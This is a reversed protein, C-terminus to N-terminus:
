RRKHLEDKIVTTLLRFDVDMLKRWWNRNRGWDEAKYAPTSIGQFIRAIARATFDKGHASIFARTLKRMRDIQAQVIEQENSSTASTKEGLTVTTQQNESGSLGTKFYSNLANKLRSSAELRINKDTMMKMDICQARLINFVNAVRERGYSECMQSFIELYSKIEAIEAKSLDGALKIHFSNGEFRVRVQSRKFRGTKDDLEWETQKLQRTVEKPSEGILKSVKFIDFSIRNPIESECLDPHEEKYLRYGVEAPKHKNVLSNMQEPGNYCLLNCIPRIPSYLEIGLQPYAVQIRNILTLITEPSLNINETAEEIPIAIEHRSQCKRHKSVISRRFRYLNEKETAQPQNNAESESKSWYVLDQLSQAREWDIVYHIDEQNEKDLDEVEEKKMLKACRCTKFLYEAFKDVDKAEPLSAYIHRQQYYLDSKDSRLFMHCQAPKGDRGARGIEQVYNEFNAPMDFHIIARIDPKNIGMGFALTAVVVRIEGNIFDRQIRKRLETTMGAHYAEARWTLKKMSVEYLTGQSKGDENEINISDPESNSTVEVMTAYNQMATRIESALSETDERRNCYIIISPLIRFTPTKLLDILAAEKNTEYSVSLILNEPITTSGIIGDDCNIKLNRAIALSTERTATATLGLYTKINMQDHLVKFFQLYAPRFNHSWESLCHAEDVCVFGVPPLNKLDDVKLLGGVIAEPSIFVVQADGRVLQEISNKRQTGSQSSHLAVGKLSSSLNKLQDEILSILPSVIVTIYKRYRWYLLAPLQYCLSKGSGTPSVFLTSHGMLIRKIVDEQNPRFSKYRLEILADEIRDRDYSAEDPYFARVSDQTLAILDGQDKADTDGNLFPLDSITIGMGLEDDTEDSDSFHYVDRDKERAIKYEPNDRIFKPARKFRKYNHKKGRSFSKRKLNNRKYYPKDQM